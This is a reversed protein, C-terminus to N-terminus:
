YEEPMKVKLARIQEPTPENVELEKMLKIFVFPGKIILLEILAVVLGTDM